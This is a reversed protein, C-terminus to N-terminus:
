LLGTRQLVARVAEVNAGELATMPTSVTNSSIVGLLHLATKFAGIGAAPGVKGQVAFVIEFIAALQDQESRVREWDGARYAEWMRVYGTPEVNAIGPMCGHAGALYAGDVVVEHGTLLTMPSGAARNMAALRRFSVDDGSSDKVGALVGDQGLRMLHEPLLKVGTCVPIDYALLPTTAAAGLTRFHSDIEEPGTIAYFPSTAMVAAVGLDEVARLQHVARDTQMDILGALVPVRGDVTAMIARLVELRRDDTFFASEASSGLAFLGHVGAGILREVLNELSDRDLEGAPTLPTLVPPIVGHFRASENSPQSTSM